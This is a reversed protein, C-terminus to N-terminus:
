FEQLTWGRHWNHPLVSLQYCGQYQQERQDMCLWPCYILQQCLYSAGLAHATLSQKLSAATSSTVQLVGFIDALADNLSDADEETCNELMKHYQGIYGAPQLLIWWQSGRPVTHSPPPFYLSTRQKFSPEKHGRVVGSLGGNTAKFVVRVVRSRFYEITWFDMADELTEPASIDGGLVWSQNLLLWLQLTFARFLLAAKTSDSIFIDYTYPSTFGEPNTEIADMVERWTPTPGLPYAVSTEPTVQPARPQRHKRPNDKSFGMFRLVEETDYEQIAPLVTKIALDLDHLFLTGYNNMITQAQLHALSNRVHSPPITHTSTVERILHSILSTLVGYNPPKLNRLRVQLYQLEEIRTALYSFWVDSKVWLIPQSELFKYTQLSAFHAICFQHCFHVSVNSQLDDLFELLAEGGMRYEDRVGFTTNRANGRFLEIRRNCETMYTENVEYADGDEAFFPVNDSARISEYQLNYASRFTIHTLQSRERTMPAQIAGYCSLSAITHLSGM